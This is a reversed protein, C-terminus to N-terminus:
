IVDFFSKVRPEEEKVYKEPNKKGDKRVYWMEFMSWVIGIIFSIVLYLPVEVPYEYEM